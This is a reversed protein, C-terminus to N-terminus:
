QYEVRYGQKIAENIMEQNAQGIKAEGSPGTIKVVAPQGSSTLIAGRIKKFEQRAAEPDLTGRLATQAQKLMQGEFDSIPGQGKLQGRAALAATDIVQQAKSGVLQAQSGPIQRAIIGIAGFAQDFNPENLLNNIDNVRTLVETEKSAGAPAIKQYTEAIQAQKLPDVQYSSTLLNAQNYDGRNIADLAGRLVSEPAGNQAAAQYFSYANKEQNVGQEYEREEQSILRKLQNQEAQNLIEQNKEYFGKQFDIKEKLPEYKLAIKRDITNQTTLLDRNAASQLIALDAQKSLSEREVRDIEQNVAGGFMGEKNQRLREIQRRLALQEAEIQNTYNTVAQAKTDIGANAELKLQEEGRNLYSEVASSYTDQSKEAQKRANSTLTELYGQLASSTTRPPVDPISVAPQPTLNDSGLKNGIMLGTNTDIRGGVGRPTDYITAM